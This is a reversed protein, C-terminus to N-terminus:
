VRKPPTQHPQAAKKKHPLYLLAKKEKMADQIMKTEAENTDLLQGCTYGLAFSARVAAYVMSFISGGHDDKLTKKLTEIDQLEVEDFFNEWPAINDLFETIYDEGSEGPCEFSYFINDCYEKLKKSRSLSWEKKNKKM